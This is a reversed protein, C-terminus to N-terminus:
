AAEDGTSLSRAHLEDIPSTITWQKVFPRADVCEFGGSQARQWVEFRVHLPAKAAYGIVEGAIVHRRRRLRPLTRPMFMQSLHAYHTTLPGHDISVAFGDVGEMAFSLQGSQAACVPVFLESDFAAVAYGLELGQREDSAYEGIITPTRSGLRALPWRWAQPKARADDQLRFRTNKTIPDLCISNHM